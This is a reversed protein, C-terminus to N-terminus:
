WRQSLAMLSVFWHCQDFAVLLRRCCCCSDTQRPRNEKKQLSKWCNGERVAAVERCFAYCSHMPPHQLLTHSSFKSRPFIHACVRSIGCRFFIFLCFVSFSLLCNIMQGRWLNPQEKHKQFTLLEACFVPHMIQILKEMTRRFFYQEVEIILM